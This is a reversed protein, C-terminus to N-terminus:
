PREYTIVYPPTQPLSLGLSDLAPKLTSYRRKESVAANLELYEARKESLLRRLQHFRRVKMEARYQTAVYVLIWFAVYGLLAIQRPLWYFPNLKRLLVKMYVSM